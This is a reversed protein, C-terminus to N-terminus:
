IEPKIPKTGGIERVLCKGIKNINEFYSHM